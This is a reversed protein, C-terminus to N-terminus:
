AANREHDLWKYYAKGRQINIFEVTNMPERPREVDDRFGSLIYGWAQTPFIDISQWDTVPVNKYFDWYANSRKSYKYHAVIFNVISDFEQNTDANYDQETISDDIYRSLRQLASTTLYLGTSEIPEIFASSLGIAVVRDKMHVKNRGTKMPVTRIDNRDVSIYFKQEIYEVFEDMVDFKNNHVYGVALQDGLPINWIWGASSAKFTSYPTCQMLKDTYAHRFVLAQNNPIKDSVDVFNNDWNAVARKFGTSDIVLDFGVLDATDVTKRVVTLNKFQHVLTDMYALLDPARFHVSIDKYELINHPVLKTEMMRDLSTSNYTQGQGVGFPFTFSHEDEKFGDFKIGLKLTGNCHKIIDKHSIGLDNLFHSVDPILAEGVGIPENDHPYMWVIEKNPYTKALYFATLYGSTGAGVIAIRNINRNEQLAM